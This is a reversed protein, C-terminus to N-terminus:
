LKHTKMHTNLSGRQSFKKNCVDCRYPKEGTHTYLHTKLNGKTICRKGCLQCVFPKEGTHKREHVKLSGLQSFKKQCIQCEYPKDATHIRTHTIMNGRSTFTMGCFECAFPKEGTHTRTHNKLTGHQSFSKDCMQCKYPKDGTHVRMHIKMYAKSTFNKECFSCPFIREIPHTQVPTPQTSSDPTYIGHHTETNRTGDSASMHVSIHKDLSLTSSFESGCLYCAWTQDERHHQLRHPNNQHKDKRNSEDWRCEQTHENFGISTTSSVPTKWMNTTHKPVLNTTFSSTACNGHREERREHVTWEERLEKGNPKRTHSWM